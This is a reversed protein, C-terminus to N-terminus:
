GLYVMSGLAGFKSNPLGLEEKIVTSGAPLIGMDINIFFFSFFLLAVFRTVVSPNIDPPLYHLKEFELDINSLAKVSSAQDRESFEPPM